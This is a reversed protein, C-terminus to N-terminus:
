DENSVPNEVVDGPLGIIRKIYDKDDHPAPFVVIDGRQPSGFTYALRNLYVRQENELTPLMSSGEIKTVAFVHDRVLLNIVFAVTLVFVWSFAERVWKNQIKRFM